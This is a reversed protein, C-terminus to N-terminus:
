RVERAVREKARRLLAHVEALTTDPHNNYDMIRHTRIRLADVLNLEERVAQMAPQRYHVGGSIETTAQMLSCFLSLKAQGSPCERNDNKNWDADSALLAIARDIIALDEANPRVQRSADVRLRLQPAAERVDAVAFWGFPTRAVSGAGRKDPVVELRTPDEPKVGEMTGLWRGPTATRSLTAKVMRAPGDCARKADIGDFNVALSNVSCAVSCAGAYGNAAADLACDIASPSATAANPPPASSACAALLATPLLSWRRMVCSGGGALPNGAQAVITDRPACRLKHLSSVAGGAGGAGRGADCAVQSLRATFEM